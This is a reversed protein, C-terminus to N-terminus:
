VNSNTTYSSQVQIPVSFLFCIFYLFTILTSINKSYSVEKGHTNNRENTKAWFLALLYCLIATALTSRISHSYSHSLCLMARANSESWCIYHSSTNTSRNCVHTISEAPATTTAAATLFRNHRCEIRKLRNSNRKKIHKYAINTSIANFASTKVTVIPGMEDVSVHARLLCMSVHSHSVTWKETFICM